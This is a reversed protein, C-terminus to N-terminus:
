GRRQMGLRRMRAAIIKFLRGPQFVFRKGDFVIRNGDMALTHLGHPFRGGLDPTLVAVPEEEYLAPNCIRVRNVVLAGGYTVSCDQAPRYLEDNVVFPTGGPRSSRVDIKVPNFPHPRWPGELNDAYLLCLNDHCGFEQDCYAIWYFGGYAFLTPDAMQRGRAVVCIPRTSTESVLEFLVLEGSEAMEPLLFARGSETFVCPYSCHTNGLYLEVAAEDLVDGDVVRLVRLAGSSTRYDYRECLITNSIGRLPFPDAFYTALSPSEIWENASLVQSHILSDAPANFSALAWYDNFAAERCIKATGALGARLRGLAIAMGSRSPVTTPANWMKESSRESGRLAAAILDAAVRGIRDLLSRYWVANSIHAQAIIMWSNAWAAREILYMSTVFPARCCQELLCFPNLIPEGNGDVLRWVREAGLEHGFFDVAVDVFDPGRSNTRDEGSDWWQLTTGSVARRWQKSPVATGDDVAISTLSSVSSRLLKGLPSAAAVGHFCVRLVRPAILPGEGM